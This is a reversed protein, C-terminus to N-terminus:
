HRQLEMLGEILDDLAKGIRLAKDIGEQEVRTLNRIHKASLQHVKIYNAKISEDCCNCHERTQAQKDNSRKLAAKGADTNYYREKRANKRGKANITNLTPKLMDKYRQEETYLQAETECPFQKVIDFAWNDWGGHSFIFKYLRRNPSIKSHAKHLRFREKADITSGVYFEQIKPNKCTICYVVGSAYKSVPAVQVDDDNIEDNDDIIMEDDNMM